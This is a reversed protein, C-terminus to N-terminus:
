VGELLPIRHLVDPPVWVEAVEFATRPIDFSHFLVEQLSIKEM